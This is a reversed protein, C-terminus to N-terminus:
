VWMAYDSWCLGTFGQDPLAYEILQRGQLIRVPTFVIKRCALGEHYAANIIRSTSILSLPTKLVLIIFSIFFFFNCLYLLIHQSFFAKLSTLHESLKHHHFWSTYYNRRFSNIFLCFIIIIILYKLDFLKNSFLKKKYSQNTSIFIFIWSM